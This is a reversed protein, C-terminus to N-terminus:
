RIALRTEQTEGAESTRRVSASGRGADTDVATVYDARELVFRARRWSAIALVCGLSAVTLASLWNAEGDVLELLGAALATAGIFGLHLWVGCTMLTRGTGNESQHM